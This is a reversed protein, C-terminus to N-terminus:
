EEIKCHTICYRIREIISPAKYKMGIEIAWEPVLALGPDFSLKFIMITSNKQYPILKIAGRNIKIDGGIEKWEKGYEKDDIIEEYITWRNSLPWPFDLLSKKVYYNGNKKIIAKQLIDPYIYQNESNIYKWITQIDSNIIGIVTIIGLSHNVRELNTHIKGTELEKLKDRYDNINLDRFSFHINLLSLLFILNIKFINKKYINM